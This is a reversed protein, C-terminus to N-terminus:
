RGAKREFATRAEPHGLPTLTANVAYTRGCETCECVAVTAWGDSRGVNVARMLTGDPCVLCSVDISFGTM